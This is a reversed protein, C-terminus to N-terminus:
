RGLLNPSYVFFPQNCPAKLKVKKINGKRYKKRIRKKMRNKRTLTFHPNSLGEPNPPHYLTHPRSTHFGPFTKKVHTHTCHITYLSRTGQPMKIYVSVNQEPAERHRQKSTGRGKGGEGERWTPDELSRPTTSVPIKKKKHFIQLVKAGPDKEGGKQFDKIIRLFFCLPIAFRMQQHEMSVSTINRQSTKRRYPSKPWFGIDRFFVAM